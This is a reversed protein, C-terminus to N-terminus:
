RTLASSLNSTAPVVYSHVCHNGNSSACGDARLRGGLCGGGDVGPKYRTRRGIVILRDVASLAIAGEDVLEQAAEPLELLKVRAAVRQRSWGLAQAAGDETLGRALMAQVARAEERPNLAKRAINEVARDADETEADRVVVPVDPLELAHAAAFHHFGAVLEYVDAGDAARRVVLPVILGQLRISGVLADVHAADLARVNEPVRIQALAVRTEVSATTPPATM